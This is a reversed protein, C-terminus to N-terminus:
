LTSFTKEFEKWIQFKELKQFFVSLEPPFFYKQSLIDNSICEVAFKGGEGIKFFKTKKKLFFVLKKKM